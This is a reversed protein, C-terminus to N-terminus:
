SFATLILKPRRRRTSGASRRSLGSASPIPNKLWFRARSLRRPSEAPAPPPDISACATLGLAVGAMLGILVRRGRRVCMRGLNDPQGSM